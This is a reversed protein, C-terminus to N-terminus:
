GKGTRNEVVGSAASAETTEEPNPFRYNVVARGQKKGQEDIETHITIERVLLGVIEQREQGSLGEDLRRRMEALLDPDPTDEEAPEEPLLATLREQAAEQARTVDKLREDLEEPTISGRAALDILRARKEGQEALRAELRQRDEDQRQAENDTGTAEERLEELLEGPDRLWREIDTWVRPELHEGKVGKARCVEPLALRRLNGNCRYWVQGKNMTGSFTRGCRACKVIGRLLYTRSTNKPRCANGALVEQAAYWIEDDVLAPVRSVVIQGERKKSNRGYHREGRYMPNKIVRLVGSPIWEERTRERRKGRQVAREDRAYVTPVGLVQLEDAVQYCTWRDQAMRRYMHRVTEAESLGCPLPDENPAYRADEKMGEVQYGFPVIGGTYRGEAAARNMGAGMRALLTRREEAAMAVRIHYIFPNIEGETASTVKVGLSQLDRWVVLPDIDDRGLRDIRYVLVEDFLGKEADTMLREGEPRRAFPVTGSVGNDSYESIFQVDLNQELQHTLEAQQTRITEREKQDESSVRTYTVVRRRLEPVTSM